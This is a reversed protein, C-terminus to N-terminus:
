DPLVAVDFGAPTRGPKGDAFTQRTHAPVCRYTWIRGEHEIDVYNKGDLRRLTIHRAEYHRWSLAAMPPPSGAPLPQPLDRFEGYRCQYRGVVPDVQRHNPPDLIVIEITSDDCKPSDCPYSPCRTCKWPKSTVPDSNRM